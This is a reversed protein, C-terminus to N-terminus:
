KRCAAVKFPQSPRATRRKIAKPAARKRRDNAIRRRAMAVYKAGLEILIANRGHRDAVMATTGAGGFPDLVTCPVVAANCKCSPSWGLTKKPAVWGLGGQHKIEQPRMTKDYPDFSSIAGDDAHYGTTQHGAAKRADWSSPGREIERVWPAGCKGCCGKASTGALICPEVLAPPFTAFHAEPFPSTAIQWVSRKNRTPYTKGVAHNGVKTAFFPNGERKDPSRPRRERYSEDDLSDEKIAEADYYYRPSKTLLFLYEHAKTCRDTVSEPMPNKKFWVIDQRLWWGDEQLAFAVRWPIGCLDKPKLGTAAIKLKQGVYKTSNRFSDKYGDQRTIEGQHSTNDAGSVGSGGTAYSDGLNVWCTGDPRLVRRVERFVAVMEAIFAQYTPELVIQSDIRRAGCKQCVDRFSMAGKDSDRAASGHFGNTNTRGGDHRAVTQKHDCGPDGGKWKATGYDRLGWYPPSTVVCHVSNAPLGHLVKRCDGRMFRITM